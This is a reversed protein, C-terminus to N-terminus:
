RASEDFQFFFRWVGSLLDSKPTERKAITPRGGSVPLNINPHWGAANEAFSGTLKDEGAIVGFVLTTTAVVTINDNM